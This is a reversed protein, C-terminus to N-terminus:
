LTEHRTPLTKAPAKEDIGDCLGESAYRIRREPSRETKGFFGEGLDAEM